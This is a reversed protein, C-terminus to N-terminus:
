RVATVSQLMRRVLSLRSFAISQSPRAAAAMTSTRGAAACAEVLTTGLGPKSCPPQPSLVGTMQPQSDVEPSGSNAKMPCSVNLRCAPPALMANPPADQADADVS